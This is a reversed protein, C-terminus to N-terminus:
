SLFPNGKGTFSISIEQYLYNFNKFGLGSEQVPRCISDQRGTFPGLLVINFSRALAAISYELQWGVPCFSLVTSWSGQYNSRNFHLKRSVFPIFTVSVEYTKGAPISIEKFDDNKSCVSFTIFYMMLTIHVVSLVMDYFLFVGEM